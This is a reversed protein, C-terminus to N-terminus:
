QDNTKKGLELSALINTLEKADAFKAIASEVDVANKVREILTKKGYKTFFEDPDKAPKFDPVTIDLGVARLTKISRKIAKMGAADSDLGLCVKSYKSAILNAHDKTVATGLVAASDQIGAKKMAILDMYGECIFITDSKSEGDYPFGYLNEHKSFVESESSNLYKPKSDDLVRGGFAIVDGTEGFIPFMVRNRFFDYLTGKQSRRFLGSLELEEESFYKSLYKFLATFDDPAYGLGFTDIDETQLKRSKLYNAGANNEQAKEYFFMAARENVELIKKGQDSYTKQLHNKKECRLLRGMETFSGSKGCFFCSFNDNKILITEKCFPCECFMYGDNGRKKIKIKM